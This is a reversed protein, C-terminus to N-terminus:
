NVGALQSEEHQRRYYREEFEVPPVYGLPELLRQNNFWSVWILTELEVHDVGRWPGLSRIVETKYLGIVSEALAYTTRTAAVAPLEFNEREFEKLRQRQETTM